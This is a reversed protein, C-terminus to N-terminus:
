LLSASIYNLNLLNLRSEYETSDAPRTSDWEDLDIFNSKCISYNDVSFSWSYDKRKIDMEIIEAEEEKRHRSPAPERYLDFNIDKEFVFWISVLKPIETLFLCSINM